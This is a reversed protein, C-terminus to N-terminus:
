TLFINVCKIITKWAQLFEDLDIKEDQNFDTDRFYEEIKDSLIFYPRQKNSFLGSLFHRFDERTWFGRRFFFM